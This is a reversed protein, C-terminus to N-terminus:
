VGVVPLIELDAGADADSAVKVKKAQLEVVCGDRGPVDRFVTEHLADLFRKLLNDLDMGHPHDSPYKSPPLRFTVRLHCAGTVPPLHATQRTVDRSWEVCGDKRGRTKAQAYPVGVIRVIM